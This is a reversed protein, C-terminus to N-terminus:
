VVSKCIAVTISEEKTTNTLFLLLQQRHTKLRYFSSGYACNKSTTRLKREYYKAERELHKSIKLKLATLKNWSSEYFQILFAAGFCNSAAKKIKKCPM